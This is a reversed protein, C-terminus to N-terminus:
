GGTCAPRRHVAAEVARQAEPLCSWARRGHRAPYVGAALVFTWVTRGRFSFRQLMAGMPIMGVGSGCGSGRRGDSRLGAWPEAVRGKLAQGALPWRPDPIVGTGRAPRRGPAAFAEGGRPGCAMRPQLRLDLGGGTAATGGPPRAAVLGRGSGQHSLLLDGRPGRGGFHGPGVLPKEFRGAATCRHPESTVCGATGRRARHLGRGTRRPRRRGQGPIPPRRFGL